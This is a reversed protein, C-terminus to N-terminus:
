HVKSRLFIYSLQSHLILKTAAFSLNPLNIGKNIKHGVSCPFSPEGEKGKEEEREEEEGELIKKCGFM